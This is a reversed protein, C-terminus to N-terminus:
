SPCASAMVLANFPLRMSERGNLNTGAETLGFITRPALIPIELAM